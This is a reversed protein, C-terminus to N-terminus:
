MFHAKLEDVIAKNPGCFLVDDIYIIVVIM